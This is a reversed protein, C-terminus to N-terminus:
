GGGVGEVAVELCGLSAPRGGGERAAELLGAVGGRVMASCQVGGVVDDPPLHLTVGLSYAIIIM